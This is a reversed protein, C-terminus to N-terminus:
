ARGIQYRNMYGEHFGGYYRRDAGLWYNWGIWVGFDADWYVVHGGADWYYRAQVVRCYGTEDCFNVYGTNYASQAPAYGETYCAAFCLCAFLGIILKKM